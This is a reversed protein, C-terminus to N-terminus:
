QVGTSGLGGVRESKQGPPASLVKVRYDNVKELSMQAIRDGHKIEVRLQSTNAVLIFLEETYDYDIVAVANALTMGHKLSLGSRPHVALKWGVPIDFILGTPIKARSGPQLVISREGYNERIGGASPKNSTTFVEIESLGAFNARVDAAASYMTAPEPIVAADNMCYVGLVPRTDEVEAGEPGPEYAVEVFDAGSAPLEAVPAMEQAATDGGEGGTEVAGERAAKEAKSPRGRKKQPAVEGVVPTMVVEGLDVAPKNESM